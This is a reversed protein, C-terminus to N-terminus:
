WNGRFNSQQIDIIWDRDEKCLQRTKNYHLVGYTKDDHNNECNEIILKIRQQKTMIEGGFSMKSILKNPSM